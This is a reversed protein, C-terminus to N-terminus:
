PAEKPKVDTWVQGTGACQMCKHGHSVNSGPYMGSDVWGGYCAPCPATMRPLPPGIRKAATIEDNM